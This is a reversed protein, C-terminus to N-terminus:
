LLLCLIYKSQNRVHELIFLFCKADKADKGKFLSNIKSIRRPKHGKHNCILHGKDTNFIKGMSTRHSSDMLEM